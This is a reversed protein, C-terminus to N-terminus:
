LVLSVIPPGACVAVCFCASLHARPASINFDHDLPVPHDLFADGKQDDPVFIDRACVTFAKAVKKSCM